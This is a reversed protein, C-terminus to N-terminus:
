IFPHPVPNLESEVRPVDRYGMEVPATYLRKVGLYKKEENFYLPMLQPIVARVVFLGEIRAANSTVDVLYCDYGKKKLIDRFVTLRREASSEAFVPTKAAARMEDLSKQEKNKFFFEAKPLMKQTSWLSRRDEMLRIAPYVREAKLIGEADVSYHLFKMIEELVKIVQKEPSFGTASSISLAIEGRQDILTAAVTPVSMDTTIDFLDLGLNYHKLDDIIKKVRPEKISNLNIRPPALENLWFILFADREVAECIARYAAEEFSAAAAAGNTTTSWFMPEKQFEFEYSLYVLQAPIFCRKEETLSYARTWGIRADEGVRNRAFSDRSLQKESFFTFVKPHTAGWFRLEEFSARIIDRPKWVSLSYRELAEATARILAEDPTAGVGNGTAGQLTFHKGSPMIMSNLRVCYHIVPPQDPTLPTKYWTGIIGRQLLRALLARLDPSIASNEPQKNEAFLSAGMIDEALALLNILVSSFVSNFFSNLRSPNFFPSRRVGITSQVYDRVKIVHLLKGPQKELFSQRYMIGTYYRKLKSSAVITM